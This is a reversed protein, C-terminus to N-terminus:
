NTIGLKTLPNEADGSTELDSCAYFLNFRYPRVDTFVVMRNTIESWYQFAGIGAVKEGIILLSGSLLRHKVSKEVCIFYGWHRPLVTDCDRIQKYDLSNVEVGHTKPNQPRYYYFGIQVYDGPLQPVPDVMDLFLGDLSQEFNTDLDLNPRHTNARIKRTLNGKIRLVFLDHIPTTQHNKDFWFPDPINDIYVPQRGCVIKYVDLDHFFQKKQSDYRRKKLVVAYAKKFSGETLVFPRLANYSTLIRNYDFAVGMGHLTPVGVDPQDELMDVEVIAIAADMWAAEYRQIYRGYDIPEHALKIALSTALLMSM